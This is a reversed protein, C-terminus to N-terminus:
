QASPGFAYLGPSQGDWVGTYVMGNVVVPGSLEAGIRYRWLLLGSNANLAYLYGDDSGVYVVGNAVAPSSYFSYNGFANGAVSKWLLAGTNANVAYLSNGFSTLYVIGNAVAPSSRSLSQETAFKWLLAGTGADLAYLIKDAAAYVKENAVAVSGAPGTYEWILTGTTADLAYLYGTLSTVYVIDSAVASASIFQDYGTNFQWLLVGTEANLAYLVGDESGVYVVGAALTPESSADGFKFSWALGPPNITVANLGGTVAIYVTERGVAPSLFSNDVPYKWLLAGTTANFAYLDDGELDGTYIVGNAIAPSSYVSVGTQKWKLALNGVTTPSLVFENPNYGTRCSDFQFQPWNVFGKSSTGGCPPNSPPVPQQAALVCATLSLLLVYPFVTIKM